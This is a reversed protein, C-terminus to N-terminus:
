KKKKPSNANLAAGFESWQLRTIRTAMADVPKEDQGPSTPPTFATSKTLYSRILLSITRSVEDHLSEGSELTFSLVDTSVPKKGSGTLWMAVPTKDLNNTKGVSMVPKVSVVGSSARQIEKAIEDMVPTLTKALDTSTGAHLEIPAAEEAKLIWDPLTPRLRRISAIATDAQSEDPKALDIVREWALLARQFEGKAELARALDILPEAGDPAREDYNKLTPPTTLDGLDVPPKPPPPPLPTPEVAAPVSIADDAVEARPFSSEVKQRILELRKESPPTMFDMQRTYKWWLGGVLTLSLLIVVPIPVRM